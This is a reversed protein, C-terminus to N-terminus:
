KRRSGRGSGGYAIMIGLIFGFNYWGGNNHIEYVNVNDSFLSIIFTIFSISGHWLGLWFGAVEGEPDEADLMANPGAACGSLLLIVLFLTGLILLKKMKM